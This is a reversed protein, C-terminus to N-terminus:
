RLLSVKVNYDVLHRAIEIAYAQNKRPTWLGVICVDLYQKVKPEPKDLKVNVPYEIVEMPVDLHAYKFINYASVFVFSDPM